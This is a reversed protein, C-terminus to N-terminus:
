EKRDSLVGAKWTLKAEFGAGAKARAIVVGAEAELDLSFTIEVEGLRWTTDASAAALEDFRRSLKGAIERLSDGVEDIRNALKERLDGLSALEGAKLPDPRVQVYIETL